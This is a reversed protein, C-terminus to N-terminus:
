PYRPWHANRARLVQAVNRRQAAGDSLYRCTVAVRIPQDVVGAMVLAVDILGLTNHRM